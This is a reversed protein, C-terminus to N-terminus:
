FTYRGDAAMERRLRETTGDVTNVRDRIARQFRKADTIRQTAQSKTLAPTGGLGVELATIADTLRALQAYTTPDTPRGSAANATKLAEIRQRAYRSWLYRDVTGGGAAAVGVLRRTLDPLSLLASDEKVFLARASAQQQEALSLSAIPDTDEAEQVRNVAAIQAEATREVRAATAHLEATLAGLKEAYVQDAYIASGDARYLAAKGQTFREIARDVEANGTEYTTDAQGLMSTLTNRTQTM